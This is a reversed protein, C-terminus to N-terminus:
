SLAYAHIHQSSLSAEAQHLADLSLGIMGLGVSGTMVLKMMQRRSLRRQRIAPREPEIEEQAQRHVSAALHQELEVPAPSLPGYHRLLLMEVSDEHM